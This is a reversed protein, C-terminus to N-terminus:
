AGDGPQRGIIGGHDRARPKKMGFPTLAITQIQIRVGREIHRPQLSLGPGVGRAVPWLLVESFPPRFDM